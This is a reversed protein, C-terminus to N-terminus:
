GHWCTSREVRQWLSCECPRLPGVVVVKTTDSKDLTGPAGVTAQGVADLHTAWTGNGVAEVSEGVTAVGVARRWNGWVTTGQPNDASTGDAVRTYLNMRGTDPGYSRVLTWGSPTVATVTSFDNTDMGIPSTFVWLRDGAIPNNTVGGLNWGYVSGAPVVLWHPITAGSLEQVYFARITPYAV